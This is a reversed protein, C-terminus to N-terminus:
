CIIGLKPFEESSLVHVALRITINLEGALKKLKSITQAVKAPAMTNAQFLLWSDLVVVILKGGESQRLCRLSVFVDSLSLVSDSLLIRFARVTESGIGRLFFYRRLYINMETRSQLGMSYAAFSVDAHNEVAWSVVTKCILSEFDSATAVPVPEFPLSNCTGSVDLDFPIPKEIERVLYMAKRCRELLQEILTAGKSADKALEDFARALHRLRRKERLIAVYAGLNDVALVNGVLFTIFAIGGVAELKGAARLSETVTVMDATKGQRYLDAIAKFLMQHSSRYFDDEALAAVDSPSQRQKSLLLGLVAQEAEPSNPLDRM